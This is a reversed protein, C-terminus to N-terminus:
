GSALGTSIMHRCTPSMDWDLLDPSKWTMNSTKDAACLPFPHLISLLGSVPGFMVGKWASLMDPNNMFHELHHDVYVCDLNLSSTTSHNFCFCFLFFLFFTRTTVVGAHCNSLVWHRRQHRHLSHKWESKGIDNRVRCIRNAARHCGRPWKEWMEVILSKAQSPLETTLKKKKKGYTTRARVEM